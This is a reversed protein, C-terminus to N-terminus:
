VPVLAFNPFFLPATNAVELRAQLMPGTNSFRDYNLIVRLHGLVRALWDLIIKPRHAILEGHQSLLVVNAVARFLHHFHAIIHLLHVIKLDELYPGLERHVFILCDPELVCVLDVSPLDWANFVEFFVLFQNCVAVSLMLFDENVLKSVV